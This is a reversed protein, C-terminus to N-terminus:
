SRSSENELGLGFIELTIELQFETVEKQSVIFLNPDFSLSSTIKNSTSKPQCHMAPM